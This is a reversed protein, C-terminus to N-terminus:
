GLIEGSVFSGSGANEVSFFSELLQTHIFVRQLWHNHPMMVPVKSFAGTISLIWWGFAIGFRRENGKGCNTSLPM